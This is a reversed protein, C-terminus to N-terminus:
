LKNNVDCKIQDSLNLSLERLESEAWQGPQLRGVEWWLWRLLLCTQLSLSNTEVRWWPVPTSDRHPWPWGRNPCIRASPYCLWSADKSCVRTSDGLTCPERELQLSLMPLDLSILILITGRPWLPLRIWPYLSESSREVTKSINKSSKLSQLSTCTRSSCRDRM